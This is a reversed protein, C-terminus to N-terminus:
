SEMFLIKNKIGLAVTRTTRGVGEKRAFYCWIMVIVIISNIIFMLNFSICIPWYRDGKELINM